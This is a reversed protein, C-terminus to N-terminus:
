NYFIINYYISYLTIYKITPLSAMNIIIPTSDAEQSVYIYVEKKM